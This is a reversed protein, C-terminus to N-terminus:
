ELNRLVSIPLSSLFSFLGHRGHNTLALSLDKLVFKASLTAMKVNVMLDVKVNKVDRFLFFGMFIQCYLFTAMMYDNFGLPFNSQLFKIWKLETEHRKIKKLRTSSNPDYIIKELPQIVIKSPSRGNNKFHRYLFTDFIKPKKMKRFHERFRTLVLISGFYQMVYLSM